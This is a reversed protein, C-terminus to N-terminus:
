SSFLLLDKEVITTCRYFQLGNFTANFIFDPFNLFFTFDVLTSDVEGEIRGIRIEYM